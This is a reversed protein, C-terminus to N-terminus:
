ARQDAFPSGVALVEGLIQRGRFVTIKILDVTEAACVNLHQPVSDGVGAFNDKGRNRQQHQHIASISFVSAPDLEKGVYFGLVGDNM